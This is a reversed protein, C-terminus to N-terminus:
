KYLSVAPIHNNSRSALILDPRNDSELLRGVVLRLFGPQWDLMRTKFTVSVQCRYRTSNEAMFDFPPSKEIRIGCGNM